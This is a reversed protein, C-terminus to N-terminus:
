QKKFSKKGTYGVRKIVEKNKDIYVLTPVSQIDFLEENINEYFTINKFEPDNKVENWSPNFAKCWGCYTASFYIVCPTKIDDPVKVDMKTKCGFLIILPLFYLFISYRIQKRLYDKM